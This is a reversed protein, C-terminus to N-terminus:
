RVPYVKCLGSWEFAWPVQRPYPPEFSPEETHQLQLCALLPLLICASHMSLPVPARSLHSSSVRRPELSRLLKLRIKAM